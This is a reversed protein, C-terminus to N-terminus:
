FTYGAVPPEKHRVVNWQRRRVVVEICRQSGRPYRSQKEFPNTPPINGVGLSYTGMWQMHWFRFALGSALLVGRNVQWIWSRNHWVNSEVSKHWQLWFPQIPKLM